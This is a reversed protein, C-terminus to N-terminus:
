RSPHPDPGASRHTRRYHRRAKEANGCTAMDCWRRRGGKSRDIFVWGCARGDCVRTRDAPLDRLLDLFRLALEHRLYDLGSTRVSVELRVRGGATTARATGMAETWSRELDRLSAARPERGRAAASVVEHLVERLERTRDLASAAARPHADCLRKLERLQDPDFGGTLEAWEVLGPFGDLWDVPEANRATVTNLFDLVVHGGILDQPRFRHPVTRM